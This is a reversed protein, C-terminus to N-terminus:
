DLKIRTLEFTKTILGVNNIEPFRARIEEHFKEALGTTFKGFGSHESSSCLRNEWHHIVDLVEEGKSNFKEQHSKPDLTYKTHIEDFSDFLEKNQQLMEQFYQKYKVM